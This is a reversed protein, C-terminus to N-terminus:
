ETPAALPKNGEALWQHYVQYDTNKPDAPIFAGDSIRKIADTRATDKYIDKLLQYM